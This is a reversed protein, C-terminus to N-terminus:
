LVYRSHARSGRFYLRSFSQFGADVCVCVCVFWSYKRPLKVCADLTLSMLAGTGYCWDVNYLFPSIILPNDFYSIQHGCALIYTPMAEIVTIVHGIAFRTVACLFRENQANGSTISKM